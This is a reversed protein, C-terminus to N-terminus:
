EESSSSSWLRIADLFDKEHVPKMLYSNMGAELCKREDQFGTIAIIFVPDYNKEDMLTRMQRATEYGDLIPMQCDMLVMNIPSNSSPQNLLHFIEMAQSGNYAKHSTVDYEKLKKLYESLILLNFPNDDVLLLNIKKKKMEKKKECISIDQTSIM